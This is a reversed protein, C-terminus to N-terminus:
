YVGYARSNADQVAEVHDTRERAARDESDLDVYIPRRLLDPLATVDGRPAARFVQGGSGPRETTVQSV